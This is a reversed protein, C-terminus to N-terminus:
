SLYWGVHSLLLRLFSEFSPHLERADACDSKGLFGMIGGIFLAVIM